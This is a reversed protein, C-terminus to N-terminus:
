SHYSHVKPFTEKLGSVIIRSINGREIRRLKAQDMQRVWDNPNNVNLWEKFTGMYTKWTVIVADDGKKTQGNNKQFSIISLSVRQNAATIDIEKQFMLNCFPCSRAQVKLENKCEPCTKLVPESGVPLDLEEVEHSTDVGYDMPDNIDGFRELNDTMEIILAEEKEPHLRLARGIAQVYLSASLTPRLMVISDCVPIDVGTTLVNVNVIYKIKGERLRTLIDDRENKKTYGDLYVCGEILEFVSRAHIRSCCYIFTCKHDKTHDKILEVSKKLIVDQSAKAGLSEYDINEGTTAVALRDCEIFKYPTLFGYHILEKIGMKFSRIEFPKGKGFILGGDLRYPTASLGVLHSCKVAELIEQYKSTRKKSVTHCEDIIVFGTRPPNQLKHYSDRHAFIVDGDLSKEGLGECYFSTSIEPALRNLAQANQTLIEKQHCLVLVKQGPRVSRRCMEAAIVSKGSGPGLELM